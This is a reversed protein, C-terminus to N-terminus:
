PKDQLNSAESEESKTNIQAADEQAPKDEIEKVEEKDGEKMADKFGKISVGVDKGLNRLKSTGFILAVVLLVILWKWINLAGM